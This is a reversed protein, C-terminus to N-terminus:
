LSATQRSDSTLGAGDASGARAWRFRRGSVAEARRGGGGRETARGGAEERSRVCDVQGYPTAAAGALPRPRVASGTAAARRLRALELGHVASLVATARSIAIDRRRARVSGGRRRRGHNSDQKPTSCVSSGPRDRFCRSATLWRAPFMWRNRIHHSKMASSIEEGNPHPFGTCLLNAGRGRAPAQPRFEIVSFPMTDPPTSRGHSTMMLAIARIVM